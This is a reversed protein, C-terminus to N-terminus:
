PVRAPARPQLRPMFIVSPAAEAPPEEVPDAAPRRFGPFAAMAHEALAAPDATVVLHAHRHRTYRAREAESAVGVVVESDLGGLHAELGPEDMVLLVPRADEPVHREWWGDLERAVAGRASFFMLGRVPAAVAACGAAPDLAAQLM